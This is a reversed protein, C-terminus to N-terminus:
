KLERLGANCPQLQGSIIEPSFQISPHFGQVNRLTDFCSDSYAKAMGTSSNLKMWATRMKSIVDNRDNCNVTRGCELIANQKPANNPINNQQANFCRLQEILNSISACNSAESINSLFFAMSFLVLKYMKIEKTQPNRPRDM